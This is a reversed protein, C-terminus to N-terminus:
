AALDLDDAEVVFARRFAAQVRELGGDVLAEAVDHLAVAGARGPGDEICDVLVVLAIGALFEHVEIVRGDVGRHGVRRLLFARRTAAEPVEAEVGVRRHLHFRQGGEDLVLLVDLLDVQQVLVIRVSLLHRAIRLLQQRALAGIHLDDAIVQVRQGLHAVERRIDRLDLGRAGVGHDGAVPARVERQQHLRRVVGAHVVDLEVGVVRLHGARGRRQAGVGSTADVKDAIAVVVHATFCGLQHALEFRLEVVVPVGRSSVM